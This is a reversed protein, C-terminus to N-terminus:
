RRIKAYTMGTSMDGFLGINAFNRPLKINKKGIILLADHIVYRNRPGRTMILWKKGGVNREPGRFLDNKSRTTLQDNNSTKETQPDM